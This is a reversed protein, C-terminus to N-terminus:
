PLLNNVIVYHTIEANNRLGTKKLIRSRYTSVTKVSIHLMEAIGTLNKGSGILKLIEFERDSLREHPAGEKEGVALALREAMDPSVYKGGGAVKRIAEVLREPAAEKTLYGGACQRLVRMAYQDEPYISLVLVPLKPIEDRVIELLELGSRGPLSIDLLVLDFPHERLLNLADPVNRAEGAVAM